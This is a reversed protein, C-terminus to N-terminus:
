NHKKLESQLENLQAQFKDRRERFEKVRKLLYPSPEKAISNELAVIEVEYKSIQKQSFAIETKLDRVAGVEPNLVSMVPGLSIVVVFLIVLYSFASLGGGTTYMTTGCYPCIHEIKKKTFFSGTHWLRPTARKGCNKCEVRQDSM